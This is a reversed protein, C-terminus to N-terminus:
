IHSTEGPCPELKQQIFFMRANGRLGFSSPSPAGGVPRVKQLIGGWLNILSLTLEISLHPDKTKSALIGSDHLIELHLEGGLLIYSYIRLWYTTISIISKGVFNLFFNLLVRIQKEEIKCHVRWPSFSTGWSMATLTADRGNWTRTEDEDDVWLDHGPERHWLDPGDDEEHHEQGDTYAWLYACGRGKM